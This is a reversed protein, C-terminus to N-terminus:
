RSANRKGAVVTDEEASADLLNRNLACVAQRKTIFCGFLGARNGAFHRNFAAALECDFGAAERNGTNSVRTRKRNVAAIQRSRVEGTASRNGVTDQRHEAVFSRGGCGALCSGNSIRHVRKGIRNFNILNGKVTTCGIFICANERDTRISLSCFSSHGGNVISVFKGALINDIQRFLSLERSFGGLSGVVQDVDSLNCSRFSERGFRTDEVIRQSRLSQLINLERIHSGCRKFTFGALLGKAHSLSATRCVRSNVKAIPEVTSAIRRGDGITESIANDRETGVFICDLM